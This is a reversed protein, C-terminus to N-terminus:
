RNSVPLLEERHLLRWAHRESYNADDLISSDSRDHLQLLVKRISNRRNM